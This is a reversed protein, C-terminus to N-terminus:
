LSNRNYSDGKLLCKITGSSSGKLSNFLKTIFQCFRKNIREGKKKRLKECDADVACFKFFLRYYEKEEDDSNGGDDDAAIHEGQGLKFQRFHSCSKVFTGHMTTM